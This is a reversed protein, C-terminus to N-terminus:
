DDEDTKKREKEDKEDEDDEKKKKKREHRLAKSVKEDGEDKREDWEVDYEEAVMKIERRLRNGEEVLTEWRSLNRSDMTQVSREEVNVDRGSHLTGNRSDVTLKRVDTCAARLLLKTSRLKLRLM